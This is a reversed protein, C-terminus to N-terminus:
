RLSSGVPLSPERRPGRAEVPEPERVPDPDPPPPPAPEPDFAAEVEATPEPQPAVESGIACGWQGAVVGILVLYLAARCKSALRHTVETAHRMEKECEDTPPAIVEFRQPPLGMGTDRSRTGLRALALSLPEYNDSRDRDHPGICWTPSM